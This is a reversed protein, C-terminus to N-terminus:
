RARNGPVGPAGTRCAQAPLLSQLTIVVEFGKPRTNQAHVSGGCAEVCSKVIALGLGAGGTDRSRSAETRYFPDFIKQLEDESVGNGQDSVIVKVHERSAQAGITIPGASGAYRVANRVLNAVARRLLDPRGMAMVSDDVAVRVQNEDLGERKLVQRVVEAVCVNELPCDSKGMTARSFSLLENILGSMEEVEDRVDDLAEKQHPAASQELIGLGVQIRAIPSCLEHAIDGLFRKQGKVFGDLRDAMRNVSHGLMGVEDTRNANVRVSFDGNAIADTARTLQSIARTLGRVPPIWMVVSLALTGLGVLVWLKADLFLNGSYLSDTALILMLPAPRFPGDPNAIDALPEM